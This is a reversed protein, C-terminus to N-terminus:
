GLARQRATTSTPEYVHESPTVLDSPNSTAFQRQELVFPTMDIVELLAENALTALAPGRLGLQIARRDLKAGNPAHDPDWQMRVDSSDVDAQWAQRSSHQAPDFSSAVTRELLSEFFARRIRLGLTIEQGVKTGWGSRYMMWLFNSKIWSMRNFSFDPGGLRGHEIAYGGTSLRYAQYVVVSTEDYHALIHKGSSPWSAAQIQHNQTPLNAMDEEISQTGTASIRTPVGRM